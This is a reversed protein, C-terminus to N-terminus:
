SEVGETTSTQQLFAQLLKVGIEGSKEPHFQMGFIHGNRVIAPVETGYNATAVVYKKETLAQFSHVFYVHKNQFMDFVTHNHEINLENWGIHPLIYETKIVNVEGPILGLGDAIGNEFGKDFLLQMGLCIGLFPKEKALKQLDEKLHRTNIEEVAAHFSGVGPLIIHTAASLTDIDDTVVVEYGLKEFATKVSAINGMGYDVIAIM